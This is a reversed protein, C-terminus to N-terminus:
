TGSPCIKAAIKEVFTDRNDTFKGGVIDRYVMRNGMSYTVALLQNQRSPCDIFITFRQNDFRLNNPAQDPHDYKFRMDVAVREGKWVPANSAWAVEYDDRRGLREWKVQEALAHQGYLVISLVLGVTGRKM